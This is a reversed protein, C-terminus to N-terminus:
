STSCGTMGSDCASQTWAGSRMWTKIFLRSGYYYPEENLTKTYSGADDCESPASKITASWMANGRGVESGVCNLNVLFAKNKWGHPLAIHCRMCALSQMDGDGTHDSSLDPGRFGTTNGSGNSYSGGASRGRPNHCNTCLKRNNSTRNSDYDSLKVNVNWVGRLLFPNTSGHPGQVESDIAGGTGDEKGALWSAAQGHCDSCHMTNSGIFQRFPPLLNISGTTGMKREGRDRGTPFVVPHWSRHNNAINTYAFNRGGPSDMTRPVCDGGSCATGANGFEGQDTGSTAPNTAKVSGFEAAVNTYRTLGNADTISTRRTNTAPAYDAVISPFSAPTDGNTYNSHCKFCLQYERTLYSATDSEAKTTPVAVTHPDGKKVTFGTPFTPWSTGSWGFTPEVGWTGRLVGSAINGLPGGPRHTRIETAAGEEEAFTRSRRVRHPNHCDTCEAHRKANNAFGGAGMNNPDEEMDGSRVNHVERTTTPQDGTAVPMGYQMDFLSKTAPVIDNLLGSSNLINGNVEGALRHCKFCTTEIAAYKGYDDAPLLPDTGLQYMGSGTGGATTLDTGAGERMLRRSGQVTHMDHCNLCSAQWVTTGRPFGRLDAAADTYTENATSKKAHASRGWASYLKRHCGMCIIDTAPDFEVTASPEDKALRNLRLFKRKPDTSDYLHPDHCSACQVQGEGLPGTAELPLTPKYGKGRIGILAGGTQIDKQSGDMRALETDAEAVANNYTISIPHDNTLNSGLNPTYGTNIGKGVPMKGANTGNMTITSGTTGTNKPLVSVEGMAVTGDHCSLCLVSSGGPQDSYAGLKDADMSESTYRTYTATYQKRNWLPAKGTNTANHPTHCFVCVQTEDQAKVANPNATTGTQYKSLNHPTMRINSVQALSLRSLGALGTVLMLIAVILRWGVNMPPVFKSM